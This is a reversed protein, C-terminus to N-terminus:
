QYIQGGAKIIREKELPDSPKHDRSLAFIKSGEQTSLIARSDGVNAIYCKNGVILVVIACSGSRDLLEEGIKKGGLCMELYKREALLFGNKLAKIPDEPFAKDM